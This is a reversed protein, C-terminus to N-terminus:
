TKESRQVREMFEGSGAGAELKSSGAGDNQMEACLRIVGMLSWRGGDVECRASM